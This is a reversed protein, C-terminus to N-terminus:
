KIIKQFNDYLYKKLHEYIQMEMDYREMEDNANRIRYSSEIANRLDDGEYNEELEALTTNYDGESYGRWDRASKIESEITEIVKGMVEFKKRTEMRNVERINFKLHNTEESPKGDDACLNGDQTSM